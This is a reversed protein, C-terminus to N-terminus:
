RILTTNGKQIGGQGTIFTYELVWTFVGSNEDKGHFKGDWGINQDSTHFVKQGYRNYITFSMSNIGIGKVFLVDNNGDGNPSFAQPVGIGEIFNVRVYVSDFGACGNIDTLSVVYWTSDQPSAFTTSCTDCDVFGSPTWLISGPSNGTAVLDAQGALDILTDAQPMGIVTTATVIPTDFVTISNTTSASAGGADTVTLQVNYVGASNFCVVPNAVTDTNPTAGGGFDWNWSSVVGASTDTLVICDGVCINDFYEFGAILPVCSTVTVIVDDSNECGNADTGTVTYTTTATPTFATGDVVGNNWVYTAAGSATLTVPDGACVSQDTGANVTPLPNITITITTDDVVVGDSIALTIDATGPTSFCVQGPDFTPSPGATAPTGNQFTWGYTIIGAGTSNDTFTICEGECITTASPTFSATLSGGCDNVTITVTSDDTGNDDDVSLIIDYVGATAFNITHPGQTAATGPTGGNFTWNWNTVNSGASIDTFTIDDGACITTGTSLTFETTPGASCDIITITMTSADSAACPATPSVTYDFTYINGIPLGTGDFVSGTLQGSPTGTTETWAGGGDAGALLTALDITANNCVNASGDTGAQPAAIVTIYGVQIDSDTGDDDTVTLTVDYTGATNYCIGTPNQVTSTTTAAGTFIWDWSPNAGLTSADTFDICDGECITTVATNLSATPGGTSPTTIELDNIAVSPDTAIGDDVNKWVFAIRLNPINECNVPLAYTNNQWLGQELGTCAVGGCCLSTLSPDLSTWTGGGDDSYFLETYDQANGGNGIMDFNLTLNTQGVTSIDGSEARVDSDTIFAGTELYAAGLDGTLAADTGIHLTNNAIVCASGCIGVPQGDEQCSIYWLNPNSGQPGTPTNLTWTLAGDFDESYVITQSYSNSIGMVFLLLSSLLLHKKMFNPKNRDIGTFISIQQSISM